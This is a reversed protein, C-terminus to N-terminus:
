LGAPGRGGTLTKMENSNIVIKGSKEMQQRLNSVYMGFMEERKNQLLGERIEDQKQAIEATTPEERSVVQLVAGNQGAQAPGVIDGVKAAFVGAVSENSMSGIDPVQGTALVPESTKIKVGLEQAAKKLDHTAKARDALEQTKKGLLESGRENKFEEEVKSRIEDFTPTAPPRIALVEYVAYGQPTHLLEPPAKEKAGFVASMLEPAVGIGPLADSTSLFDTEVASGHAAKEIGNARSQSLLTNAQVEAQHQATQQKLLPEIDGKVEDFPKLRAEQKDEVRVIHFGYSSKIVDSTQGKAMSFLVSEVEPSGYRGRQVWGLLGALKNSGTDESYQQALQGFDGGSKIQKLIDEAKARAADLAKPDVKGDAGPLPAKILIHRVSVQEPLRYEDGHQQYYTKLDENSVQVQSEVKAVDVLAYRLKRKEPISNAYSAKNSEYFSKLEEPTAHVSKKIEAADLIAYDFKVKTNRKRVEQEVESNTVFAAGSILSHLKRILLGDREMAEFKTPTLNNQALLDEYQKEGMFKGNPFFTQSYQGHEFEERLEADTVRLGINEAAVLLAKESILQEAARQNFYPLMQEAMPNGRPFQQRLMARGQNYVDQSTVEQSGVTAVVGKASGTVGGSTGAGPVLYVVMGICIVVLIGSLVYKKIKGQSQLFRIM